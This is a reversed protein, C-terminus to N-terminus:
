RCESLPIIVIEEKGTTIARILSGSPPTQTALILKGFRFPKTPDVVEAPPNTYPMWLYGEGDLIFHKLTGDPLHPNIEMVLLKEPESEVVFWSM